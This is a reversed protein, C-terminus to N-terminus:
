PKRDFESEPIQNGLKCPEWLDKRVAQRLGALPFALTLTKGKSQVWARLTADPSADSRGIMERVLASPAPALYLVDRTKPRRRVQWRENPGPKDDFSVRVKGGDDLALGTGPPPGIVVSRWRAGDCAVVLNVGAVNSSPQVIATSHDGYANRLSVFEWASARGTGGLLAVLSCLM